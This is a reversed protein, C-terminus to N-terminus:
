IPFDLGGLGGPEENADIPLIEADGLELEVDGWSVRGVPKHARGAGVVVGGAGRAGGKPRGRRSRPAISDFNLDFDDDGVDDDDPGDM